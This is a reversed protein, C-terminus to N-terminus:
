RSYVDLVPEFIDFTHSGSLNGRGRSDELLSKVAKVKERLQSLRTVDSMGLTLEADLYEQWLTAQDELSLSPAGGALSADQVPASNLATQYIWRLQKVDGLRILVNTMLKLFEVSNTSPPHLSRALDLVKLAVLPENNVELELIAHCV